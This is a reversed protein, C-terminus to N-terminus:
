GRGGRKGGADAGFTNTALATGLGGLGVKLLHRRNILGNGAVRDLEDSMFGGNKTNTM